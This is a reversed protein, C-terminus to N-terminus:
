GAPPGLRRGAVASLRVRAEASWHEPASIIAVDLCTDIPSATRATAAAARALEIILEKAKVYERDVLEAIQRKLLGLLKQFLEVM